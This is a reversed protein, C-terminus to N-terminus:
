TATQDDFGFICFACVMQISKQHMQKRFATKVDYVLKSLFNLMGTSFICYILAGPKNATILGLIVM